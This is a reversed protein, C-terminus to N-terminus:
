PNQSCQRNIGNVVQYDATEMILVSNQYSKLGERATRLLQLIDSTRQSM